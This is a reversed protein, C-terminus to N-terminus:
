HVPIGAKRETEDEAWSCLLKEIETLESIYEEKNM